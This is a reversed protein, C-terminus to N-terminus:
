TPSLLTVVRVKGKAAEFDARLAELNAELLQVASPSADQAWAPVNLVCFSLVLLAHKM